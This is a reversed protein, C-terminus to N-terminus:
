RWGKQGDERGDERGEECMSGEAILKAVTGLFSMENRSVGAQDPSVVSLM